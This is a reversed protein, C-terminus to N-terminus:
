DNPGFGNEFRGTGMVKACLNSAATKETHSQKAEENGTTIEGYYARVPGEPPKVLIRWYTLM